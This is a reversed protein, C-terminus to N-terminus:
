LYLLLVSFDFANKTGYVYEPVKVFPIGLLAAGKEEKEGDGVVLLEGPQLCREELIGSFDKPDTVLSYLTDFYRAVNCEELDLRQNTVTADSASVLPVKGVLMSIDRAPLVNDYDDSALITGYIDFAICKIM